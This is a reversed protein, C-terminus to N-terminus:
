AIRRELEALIWARDGTARNWPRPMEFSEIGAARAHEVWEPNDDVFADVNERQLIETKTNARRPMEPDGERPSYVFEVQGISAGFHTAIWIGSVPATALPAATVAIHRFRAANADLWRKMEPIPGLSAGHALRFRDLSALYEHKEVGLLRHPPNEVLDDFTLSCEPHEVKWGRVLWEGMLDNLVDDVDWAITKM